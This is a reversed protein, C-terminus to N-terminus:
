TEMSKKRKSSKWIKFILYMLTTLTIGIVFCVVFLQYDVKFNNFIIKYNDILTDNFMLIEM